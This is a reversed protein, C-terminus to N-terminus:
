IFGREQTNNADQVNQIQNRVQEFTMTNSAYLSSVSTLALLSTLFIKLMCKMIPINFIYIVKTYCM